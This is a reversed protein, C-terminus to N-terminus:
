PNKILSILKVLVAEKAEQYTGFNESITTNRLRNNEITYLRFKWAHQVYMPSNFIEFYLNHRERFWDFAQQWLPAKVKWNILNRMQNEMLPNSPNKGILIGPQLSPHNSTSYYELCEENFGLDKLRLVQGYPIFQERM